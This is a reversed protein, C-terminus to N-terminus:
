QYYSSIICHIDTPLSNAHHLSVWKHMIFKLIHIINKSLLYFTFDVPMHRNSLLALTLKLNNYLDIKYFWYFVLKWNRVSLQHQHHHQYLWDSHGLFSHRYCIRISPGHNFYFFYDWNLSTTHVTISKLCNITEHWKLLLRRWIM